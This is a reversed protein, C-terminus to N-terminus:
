LELQWYRDTQSSTEILWLKEASPFVSRSSIVFIFQMKTAEVVKLTIKVPVTTVFIMNQKTGHLIACNTPLDIPMPIDHGFIPIFVDLYPVCGFSPTNHLHCYVDCHKM